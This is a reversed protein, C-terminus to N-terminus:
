QWVPPIAGTTAIQGGRSSLAAESSGARHPPPAPHPHDLLPKVANYLVKDGKKTFIPLIFHFYSFIYESQSKGTLFVNLYAPPM